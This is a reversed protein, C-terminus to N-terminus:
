IFVQLFINKRCNLFSQFIKFIYQFVIELLSYSGQGFLKYKETIDKEWQQFLVPGGVVAYELAFRNVISYHVMLDALHWQCGTPCHPTAYKREFCVLGLPRYNWHINHDMKPSLYKCALAKTWARLCNTQRKDISGHAHTSTYFARTMSHQNLTLVVVNEGCKM